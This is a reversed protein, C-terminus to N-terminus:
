LSEKRALTEKAWRRIAISKIAHLMNIQLPSLHGLKLSATFQDAVLEGLAITMTIIGEEALPPGCSM